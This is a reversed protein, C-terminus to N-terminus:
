LRLYWRQKVCENVMLLAYESEEEHQNEGKWWLAWNLYGVCTSAYVEVTM